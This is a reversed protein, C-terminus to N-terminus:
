KILRFIWPYRYSQGENAKIGALIAFVIWAIMLAVAAPATLIAGIGFTVLTLVFLGLGVICVALNFNLAEKGQDDVFPMENKKIQWMILPGLLNGFPIVFGSLTSLHTFMAWQREETSPAGTPSPPPPAMNPTPTESDTM